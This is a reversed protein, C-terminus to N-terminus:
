FFISWEKPKFLRTKVENKKNKGIKVKFKLLCSQLPHSASSGETTKLILCTKTCAQSAHQPCEYMAKAFLTPSPQLKSSPKHSYPASLSAYSILFSHGSKHFFQQQSQPRLSLKSLSSSHFMICKSKQTLPQAWTQPFLSSTKFNSYRNLLPYCHWQM